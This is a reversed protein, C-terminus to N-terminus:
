STVLQRRARSPLQTIESAIGLQSSQSARTCRRVATRVKRDCLAEKEHLHARAASAFLGHSLTATRTTSAFIM